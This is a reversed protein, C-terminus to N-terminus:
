RAVNTQATATPKPRIASAIDVLMANRPVAHFQTPVVRGLPFALAAVM